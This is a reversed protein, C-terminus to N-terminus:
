TQLPLMNKNKTKLSFQYLLTRLLGFNHPQYEHLGSVSLLILVQMNEYTKSIPTPIEEGSLKWNSEIKNM